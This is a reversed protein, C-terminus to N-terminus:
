SSNSSLYNISNKQLFKLIPLIKIKKGNIREEEERNETVIVLDECKLAESARLLARIERQKTKIETIDFCVQILSKIEKGSKVVFDIEGSHTEKFYFIELGPSFTKQRLLELYVINELYRGINESLSVEMVNILGTDISYVKRPAKEIEKVKFSFRKVFSLLFADELYRSFKDVTDKSIELFNSVSTNTVMASFNTLYFRLLSRIQEGKRVNHRRIIDKELIDALYSLLIEQKNKNLVVEPFGGFKIYDRFLERIAFFDPNDTEKFKLFEAFSLPMVTLDLHRGTLLTSLERSLLKANSGSIVVYAKKLELIKLVWKEWDKVEQIEDFFLFVEGKPKLCEMYTRYFRELTTPNLETLRPDEFNIFLTSNPTIGSTILRKVFQRMIYTKGARRPGTIVTCFGKRLLDKLKRLYFEREIGCDLEKQWFNWNELVKILESQIM